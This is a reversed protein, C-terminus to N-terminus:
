GDTEVLGVGKPLKLEIAKPSEWEGVRGFLVMPNDKGSGGADTALNVAEQETAAIVVASHRIGDIYFLRPGSM